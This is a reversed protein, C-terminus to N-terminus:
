FNKELEVRIVQSLVELDLDAGDSLGPSSVERRWYIEGQWGGAEWDRYLGVQSLHLARGPQQHQQDAQGGDEQQEGGEHEVVSPPLCAGAGTVQRSSDIIDLIVALHPGPHQPTLPVPLLRVTLLVGRGAVLLQEVGRWAEACLVAVLLVGPLSMVLRVVLSVM